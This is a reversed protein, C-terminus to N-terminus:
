KGPYPSSFGVVVFVSRCGGPCVDNEGPREQVQTKNWYRGINDDGNHREAHATLVEHAAAGALTVRSAGIRWHVRILGVGAIQRIVPPDSLVAPWIM